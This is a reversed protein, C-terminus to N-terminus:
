KFCHGCTTYGMVQLEAISLSSTSYNEPKIRVVDKCDPHHIKMTSTNLVWTETTQQNEPIYYTDFNYGGGNSETATTQITDPVDVTSPAPEITQVAPADNIQTPSPEEPAVVINPENEITNNDVQSVSDPSIVIPSPTVVVDTQSDAVIINPTESESPSTVLVEENFVNTTELSDDSPLSRDVSTDGTEIAERTLQTEDAVSQTTESTPFTGVAVFFLLIGGIISLARKGKSKKFSQKLFDSFPSIWFALALFLVFSVYGSAKLAVLAFLLVFVFGTISIGKKIM